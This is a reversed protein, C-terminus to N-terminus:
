AQKPLFQNVKQLYDDWDTSLEALMELQKLHQMLHVRGREQSLYQHLKDNVSDQRKEQLHQDLNPLIRQYVLNNTINGLCGPRQKIPDLNTWGRLKFWVKYLNDPFTKLWAQTEEALYLNLLRRLEDPDRQEQFGTAEDIAAVIGVTAFAM